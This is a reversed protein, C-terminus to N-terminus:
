CREVKETFSCTREQQVTPTCACTQAASPMALVVAGIAKMLGIGVQGVGNSNLPGGLLAVAGIAKTLKLTPPLLVMAAVAKTVAVEFAALTVAGVAKTVDLETVGLAVAGLAKTVDLETAM